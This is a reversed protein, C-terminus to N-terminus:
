RCLEVAQNIMSAFDEAKLSAGGVLGGDIDKQKLLGEINGPKASGGYLIRLDQAQTESFKKAVVGRIFAHVQNAQDDSATLGTGIAWVPEYAIILKSLDKAGDLIALVQKRIVDETISAEREQQTEGVCAIPTIEQELCVRVKETVSADSEPYYQRRESHGVLTTAVGVDKLMAASIEGTYAGDAHQNINQAAIVIPSDKCLEVSRQLLTYPVAFIVEVTESWGELLKANLDEFFGSLEANTKNMKWNGALIPKRM